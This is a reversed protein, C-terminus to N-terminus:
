KDTWKANNFRTITLAPHGFSLIFQMGFCGDAVPGVKYSTLKFNQVSVRPRSKDDRNKYDDVMRSIFEEGILEMEEYIQVKKKDDSVDCKNLFTLMVNRMRNLTDVTEGTYNMEPIQCVVAPFTRINRVANVIDDMDVRFFRARDTRHQVDVHVKAINEFYAVAEGYKM